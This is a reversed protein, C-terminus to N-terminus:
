CSPPFGERGVNKGEADGVEVFIIEASRAYLCGPNPGCTASCIESPSIALGHFFVRWLGVGKGLQAQGSWAASNPTQGVSCVWCGLDLPSVVSARLADLLKDGSRLEGNGCQM